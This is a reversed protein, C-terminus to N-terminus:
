QSIAYLWKMSMVTRELCKLKGVHEFTFTHSHKAIWETGLKLEQRHMQNCFCQYDMVARIM